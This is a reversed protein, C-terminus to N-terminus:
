YNCGPFTCFYWSNPDFTQFWGNWSNNMWKLWGFGEKGLQYWSRQSNQTYVGMDIFDVSPSPNGVVAPWTDLFEVSDQFGLFIGMFDNLEYPEMQIMWSMNRWRVWFYVFRGIESNSHIWQIKTTISGMVCMGEPLKVYSIISSWWTWHTFGSNWHCSEIAIKVYGSNVNWDHGMLDTYFGMFESYFVWSIVIFIGHFWWLSAM